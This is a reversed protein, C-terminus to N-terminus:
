GVDAREIAVPPRISAAAPYRLHQTDVRPSRLEIALESLVQPLLEKHERVEIALTESNRWGESFHM